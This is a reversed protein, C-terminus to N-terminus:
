TEHYRSVAKADPVIRDFEIRGAGGREKTPRRGPRGPTEDGIARQKIVERGGPWPMHWGLAIRKAIWRTARPVALSTGGVAVVSGSRSGAALMGRHVKSDESTCMADPGVRNPNHTPGAASYPAAVDEKRCYGGMVVTESGRGIANLLGARVVVCPKQPDDEEIERGGHDHREYCDHDFYSQRGRMPYGYPTDDRQIYAHIVDQQSFERNQLKITWVGSSAVNTSGAHDATPLLSIHFRARDPQAAPDNPDLPPLEDVYQVECGSRRYIWTPDEGIPPTEAEGPPTISLTLRSSKTGQRLPLVIDVFSPTRDDAQVRWYLREESKKTTFKVEAHCRSLNSNGAPLVIELARKDHNFHARRAKIIEDLLWELPIPTSSGYIGSIVGYSLNIVVPVFPENLRGENRLQQALADARDLIFYIASLVYATLTAGSTDATTATPLQVAVIPRNTQNESWDYGTATDMVHTGHAMRWAASKHDPRAFDVLGALAYFKDEDLTGSSDTSKDRLQKIAAKDRMRGTPATGDFDGDQMWWYEVRPERNIRFREHIFAIGDDIVGVLVPIVESM